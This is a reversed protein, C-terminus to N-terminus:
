AQLLWLLIVAHMDATLPPHQLDNFSSKQDNSTSQQPTNTVMFVVRQTISVRNRPNVSASLQLHINNM